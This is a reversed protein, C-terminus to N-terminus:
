LENADVVVILPSVWSVRITTGNSLLIVTTQGVPIIIGAITISAVALDVGQTFTGSSPVSLLSTAGNIQTVTVDGLSTAVNNTLSFTFSEAAAEHSSSTTAFVMIAAVCLFGAIHTIFKQV